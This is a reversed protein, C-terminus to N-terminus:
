EEGSESYRYVCALIWLRLSYFFFCFKYKEYNWVYIYIKKKQFIICARLLTLLFSYIELKVNRKISKEIRKWNLKMTKHPHQLASIGICKSKFLFLNNTILNEELYFINFYETPIRNSILLLECKFM